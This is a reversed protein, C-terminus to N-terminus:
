GHLASDSKVGGLGELVTQITFVNFSNDDVVLVRPLHLCECEAKHDERDEIVPARIYTGYTILDSQNDSGINDLLHPPNDAARQLM